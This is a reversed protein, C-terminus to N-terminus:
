KSRGHYDALVDDIIQRSRTAEPATTDAQGAVTILAKWLEDSIIQLTIPYLVCCYRAYALREFVAKTLVSEDCRCVDILVNDL